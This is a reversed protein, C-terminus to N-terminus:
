RSAASADNDVTVKGKPRAAVLDPASRVPSGTRAREMATLTARETKSLNRAKSLAVFDKPGSPGYADGVYVRFGGATMVVDGKRLTSDSLLEDARSATVASHCTCTNDFSTQYRKAVPLRTYLEGSSSVADEIRDTAMTYLETPADPCQAACAAEGGSVSNTPFFYGDCLRVCIPKGYGFAAPGARKRPAPAESEPPPAYQRPSFFNGSNAGPQGVIPLNMNIPGHALAIGGAALGCTVALAALGRTWQAM